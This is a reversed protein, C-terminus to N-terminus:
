AQINTRMCICMPWWLCLRLHNGKLGLMGTHVVCAIVPKAWPPHLQNTLPEIKMFVIAHFQLNRICLISVELSCSLFFFRGAPPLATRGKEKKRKCVFAKECTLYFGSGRGWGKCLPVTARSVVLSRPWAKSRYKPTPCVLLNKVGAQFESGCSTLGM